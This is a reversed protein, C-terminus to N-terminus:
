KVAGISNGNFAPPECTPGGTTIQNQAANLKNGNTNLLCASWKKEKGESNVYKGSVVVIVNHSMVTQAPDMKGNAFFENQEETGDLKCTAVAFLSNKDMLTQPDDAAMGDKGPKVFFAVLKNGGIQGVIYGKYGNEGLQYKKNCWDTLEDIKKLKEERTLKKKEDMAGIAPALGTTKAYAVPETNNLASSNSPNKHAEAAAPSLMLIGAASLLTNRFVTKCSKLMARIEDAVLIASEEREQVNESLPMIKLLFNIFLLVQVITFYAAPILFLELKKNVSRIFIEYLM